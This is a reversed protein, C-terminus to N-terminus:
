CKMLGLTLLAFSPKCTQMRGHKEELFAFHYPAVFPAWRRGCIALCIYLSM